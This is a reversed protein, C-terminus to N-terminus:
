PEKREEPAYRARLEEETGNYRDLDLQRPWFRVKAVDYQWFTWGTWPTPLAPREAKWHAVWLEHGAAWGKSWGVLVHWKSRSTYVMAPRDWLGALEDLFGTVLAENVGAKEVDVVPPLALRFGDGAALAAYFARAQVAAPIRPQLAHYGGLLLQGEAGRVHEAFTPDPENGTSARAFAFSLGAARAAAFPFGRQYRSIDCGLAQMNTM